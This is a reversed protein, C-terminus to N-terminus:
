VKAETDPQEKFSDHSLTRGGNWSLPPKDPIGDGQEPNADRHWPSPSGDKPTQNLRRSDRGGDGGGGQVVLGPPPQYSPFLQYTPMSETPKPPDESAETGFVIKRDEIGTSGNGLVLPRQPQIM